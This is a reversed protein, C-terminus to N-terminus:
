LDELFLVKFELKKKLLYLNNYKIKLIFASDKM